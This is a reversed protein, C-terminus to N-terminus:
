ASVNLSAGGSTSSNSSGSTSTGNAAFQLFDQQLTSYTQQAATLNGSQLEQGLDGFLTAAGNQQAAGEAAGSHHHHHRHVSNTGQQQIDQQLTTFDSQAASLNGAKLDQGLQAIAQSIPNATSSGNQAASSGSQWQSPLLQQLSSFDSQAQSLKGSQLDQGLLAFEQQMQKFKNQVPPPNYGGFLASGVVGALFM